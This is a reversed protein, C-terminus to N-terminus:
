LGLWRRLMALPSEEPRHVAFSRCAVVRDGPDLLVRIMVPDARWSRVRDGGTLLTALDDWPMDSNPGHKNINLVMPGASEERAPGGLTAEVEALTMGKEIKAGNERTIATRPWLLWAAVALGVAVASLSLFLFRRPRPVLEARV